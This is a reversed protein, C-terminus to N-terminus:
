VININRYTNTNNYKFENLLSMDRRLTLYTFDQSAGQPLDQRLQRCVLLLMHQFDDVVVVVMMKGCNLQKPRLYVLQIKPTTWQM